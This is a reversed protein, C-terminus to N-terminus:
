RQWPSNTKREEKREKAYFGLAFIGITIIWGGVIMMNIVM